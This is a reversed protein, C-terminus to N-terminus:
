FPSYAELKKALSVETNLQLQGSDFAQQWAQVNNSLDQQTLGRLAEVAAYQLAPDRDKLAPGLAQISQPSPIQGLADVAALKVDLKENSTLVGQLLAVNEVEGREGLQVCCAQRVSQDDDNLGAVLVERALPAELPGVTEQIARRVLPDRETRIQTALDDALRAQEDSAADRARAGSERIAAIRMAPTIISTREKRHWPMGACGLWTITLCGLLLVRWSDASLLTFVLSKM